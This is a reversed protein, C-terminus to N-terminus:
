GRGVNRMVESEAMPPLVNRYHLNADILSSTAPGGDRPVLDSAAPYLAASGTVDPGPGILNNQSEPVSMQIHPRHLPLPLPGRYNHMVPAQGEPPASAGM